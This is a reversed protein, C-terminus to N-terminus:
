GAGGEAWSRLLHHAIALPPPLALRATPAALAARVEDKTFWAAEELESRDVTLERGRARATCGLMLSAPFPWPQSGLYRVEDVAVGAEEQVERRVAEELTEGAEVFGALASFFPRPWSPQRGLLCDDGDLVLMIVVPDTRPFHETSCAGCWRSWGGDKPRTAEGCGPCFGHRSHWDVLHRAEAAMAADGAPLASAIARLDPFHAVADFGFERLADPRDSLDVAFHAVGDAVGLFVPEPAGDRGDLLAPTAWALAPAAGTKVLPSLRWVPLLRTVEDALRERLWAADRRLHAARDLPSGGFVLQKM